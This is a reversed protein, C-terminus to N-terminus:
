ILGLLIYLDLFCWSVGQGGGFVIIVDNLQRVRRLGQSFSPVWSHFRIRRRRVPDWARQNQAKSRSPYRKPGKCDRGQRRRSNEVVGLAQATNLLFKFAVILNLVALALWGFRAGVVGYLTDRAFVFRSTLFRLRM